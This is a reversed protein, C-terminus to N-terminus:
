QRGVLEATRAARRGMRRKNNGFARSHRGRRVTLARTGRHGVEPVDWQQGPHESAACKAGRMDPIM